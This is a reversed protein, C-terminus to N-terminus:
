TKDPFLEMLIRTIEKDTNTEQEKNWGICLNFNDLWTKLAEEKYIALYYGVIADVTACEGFLIDAGVVSYGITESLCKKYLKNYSEIYYEKSKLETLIM